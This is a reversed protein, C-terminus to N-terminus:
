FGFDKRPYEPLSRLFKMGYRKGLLRSDLVTIVGRDDATRILRGIGQRFKLVAEPVAYEMFPNGGAAAIRECRAKELPQGPVAFPLKTIVVHRLAEGPIDIGTWFSDTGFLVGRSASKFDRILASRSRTGDQVLLQYGQSRLLGDLREACKQMIAYSTFLVLCGGRTAGACRPIFYELMNLYDPQSPDPLREPLYIETQEPRFPSPLALPDGGEYGVRGTYFDFKGEVTLTASTLMVPYSRRFLHSRLLEPVALPAARLTLFDKENEVWYVTEPAAQSIFVSVADALEGVRNVAGELETKFAVDKESAAADLLNLRLERLFPSVTDPFAGPSAVERVTDGSEAMFQGAIRFFVRTKERLEAVMGRLAPMSSGSHLLLGHGTDPNFLRNLCSIVGPESIRIGLHDAAADELTHAEDLVLASFRPLVGGGCGESDSLEESEIKMNAFFLAHNAIVIDANEWSFRARWYFCGRFCSCHSSMCSGAECAVLNWARPDFRSDEEGRDGTATKESWLIIRKLEAALNGLDFLRSSNESMALALRRRCLYNGRGKAIVAKFKVGTLKELMPIDKHILQEQLHITGTAVLAPHPLMKSWYILPVLYAFSKGTGTPAEVALNKGSVLAEAVALAMERQGPRLECPRGSVEQFRRIAGQEPDFFKETERIVASMDAPEEPVPEAPAREPAAAADSVPTYEVEAMSFDPLEDDIVM